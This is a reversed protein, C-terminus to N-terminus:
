INKVKKPGSLAYSEHDIANRDHQVKQGISFRM